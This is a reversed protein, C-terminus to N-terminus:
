GAEPLAPPEVEALRKQALRVYEPMIDFGYFSCGLQKAAILTSGSGAFNDLVTGGPPCFTQILAKPLAVPFKAPHAVNKENNGVPIDWVNPVRAIGKKGPTGGNTWRSHAYDNMTLHDTLKGSIRPDCFPKASKSFWLMQEYCHRPWQNHGLPGRDKKLWIQTQHEKWGFERLALQTRLVYDSQVGAKVHPDIVFLVSGDDTLKDWLKSMWDVTFDPYESEPVGPYMDKRQDAYPPSTVCLNISSDPLSPILDRCDGQTVSNIKIQMMPLTARDLTADREKRNNIRRLQKKIARATLKDGDFRQKMCETQEDHQAEALKAAASVAIEGKDMAEVLEPIGKGVVMKADAYRDKGGLGVRKALQDVTLTEVDSNRVQKSRRDGGHKYSRLADVIAVRESVTYEKRMLNEAFQGNLVSEVDVIRVPITELEMLDRYVRLRREGFVLKHDPTIGIPQLLGTEEISEALGKIDGMDKRHRKGIKIDRIKVEQIKCNKM